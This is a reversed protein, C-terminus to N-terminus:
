KLFNGCLFHHVGRVWAARNMRQRGFAFIHRGGWPFLTATMNKRPLAGERLHYVVLARLCLSFCLHVNLVRAFCKTRKTDQHRQPSLLKVARLGRGRPRQRGPLIAWSAGTSPPKLVQASSPLVWAGDNIRLRGPVSWGLLCSKIM